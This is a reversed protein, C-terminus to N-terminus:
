QRDNALPPLRNMLDQLADGIARISHAALFEVRPYLTVTDNLCREVFARIGEADEPPFSVGAQSTDLFRDLYSGRPCLALVPRGVSMYDYLKTTLEEGYGPSPVALLLDFARMKELAEAHPLSDHLRLVGQSVFNRLAPLSPHDDLLEGYWEVIPKPNREQLQQCASLLNAFSRDQYLTGFYGIRMVERPRVELVTPVDGEIGIPAIASPKTSLFAWHSTYHRAVQENVFLVGQAARLVRRELSRAIFRGFPPWRAVPNGSWLDQLDFCVTATGARRLLIGVIATSWPPSSVVAVVRQYEKELRICEKRARHFFRSASLVYEDPQLLARALRRIPKPLLHPTTRKQAVETLLPRRRDRWESPDRRRFMRVDVDNNWTYDADESGACIISVHYNLRRAAIALRAIRVGPAKEGPGFYSLLVVGTTM